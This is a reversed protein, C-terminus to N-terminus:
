MWDGMAAAAVSPGPSITAVTPPEKEVCGTLLLVTLIVMAFFRKM